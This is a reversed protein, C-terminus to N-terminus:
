NVLPSTNGAASILRQASGSFEGPVLVRFGHIPYEGNGLDVHEVLIPIGAEELLASTQSAFPQETITTLIEYKKM